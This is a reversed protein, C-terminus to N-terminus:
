IAVAALLAIGALVPAGRRRPAAPTAPEPTAMPAAVDVPVAVADPAAAPAEPPAPPAAAAAPRAPAVPHPRARIREAQEVTAASPPVGYEAALRRAFDAYAELAAAAEGARELVALLRRLSGEDMPELAAARRAWLAAARPEGAAEERAALVWAAEVAERRRRAREDELWREADPAEGIFFGPLLDGRYLALADEHRGAAIADDFAAADCWLVAPDTGVERDGRGVVADDGISR